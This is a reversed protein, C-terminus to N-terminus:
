GVKCATPAVWATAPASSPSDDLIRVVGSNVNATGKGVKVSKTEGADLSIGPLTPSFLNVGSIMNRFIVTTITHKDRHENRLKIYYDFVTKGGVSEAANREQYITDIKANGKCSQAHLNAAGATILCMAALSMIMRTM